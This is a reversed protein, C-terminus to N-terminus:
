NKTLVFTTHAADADKSLIVAGDDRVAIRYDPFNIPEFMVKGDGADLKKFSCDVDFNPTVAKPRERAFIVFNEHHVYFNKAGM